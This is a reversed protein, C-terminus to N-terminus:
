PRPPKPITGPRFLNPDVVPKLKRARRQNGQQIKTALQESERFREAENAKLREKIERDKGTNAIDAM